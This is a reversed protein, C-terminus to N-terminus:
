AYEVIRKITLFATRYERALANWSEDRARARIAYIEAFTFKPFDKHMIPIM